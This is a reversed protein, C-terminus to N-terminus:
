VGPLTTRVRIHSVQGAFRKEVAYQAYTQFGQQNIHAADFDKDLAVFHHQELLAKTTEGMESDWASYINYGDQVKMQRQILANRAELAFFFQFADRFDCPSFITACRFGIWTASTFAIPILRTV